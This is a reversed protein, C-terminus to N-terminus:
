GVQKLCMWQDLSVQHWRQQAHICIHLVGVTGVLHTHIHRTMKWVVSSPLFIIPTSHKRQADYLKSKKWRAPQAAIQGVQRLKVGLERHPLVNAIHQHVAPAQWGV